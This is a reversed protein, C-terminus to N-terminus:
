NYLGKIRGLSTPAIGTMTGITLRIHQGATVSGSSATHSSAFVRRSSATSRWCTCGAGTDGHWRIEMLLNDSNNYNFTNPTIPMDVYGPGAPITYNSSTRVPVPTKGTYNNNFTSELVTKTSHCLWVRTQNFTGTTSATGRNWEIKNIYGAYNIESKLFLAQFRFSNYSNGWWPIYNNAGYTGITVVKGTAGAPAVFATSTLAVIAITLILAKKM